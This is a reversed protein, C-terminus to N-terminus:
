ADFHQQLQSQLGLLKDVHLWAASGTAMCADTKHIEIGLNSKCWFVHISATETGDAHLPPNTVTIVACKTHVIHCQMKLM